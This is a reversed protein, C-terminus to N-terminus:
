REDGYAYSEFPNDELWTSEIKIGGNITLWNFCLSFFNAIRM